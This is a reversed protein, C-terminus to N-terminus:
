CRFNSMVRHIDSSLDSVERAETASLDARQSNDQSMEAISIIGSAIEETASTQEQLALSIDDVADLVQDASERIGTIAAGADNALAVGREVENVSEQMAEVTSAVNAEIEHIIRSIEESSQAARGALQRVEDAVVAFGRGHDGARAAEIAANLALLNTQESVSQIVSVVSSIRETSDGLEEVSSSVNRVAESMREMSSTANLIIESGQRAQEGASRSMESASQANRFIGGINDRMQEIAASMSSAAQSQEGSSGAVQDAAGTLEGASGALRGANDTLQRVMSRLSDQMTSMADLMSDKQAQPLNGTLDGASIQQAIRVADQPEGGLYAVLSRGTLLSTLSSIVVALVVLAINIYIARDASASVEEFLDDSLSGQLANFSDFQQKVQQYNKEVNHMDGLASTIDIDVMFIAAETAKQYLEVKDTILRLQDQEIPTFSSDSLWQQLQGKIRGLDRDVGAKMEGQRAVEFSNYWSVLRFMDTHVRAMDDALEAGKRAHEFRVSNIETLAERQQSIANFAVLGCIILFGAAVIPGFLIKHITKM